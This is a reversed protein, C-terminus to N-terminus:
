LVAPLLKKIPQWKITSYARLLLSTRAWLLLCLLQCIHRESESNGFYVVVVQNDKIFSDFAPQDLILASVHQVRKTISGVIEKGMCRGDLDTAEKNMFLKITWFSEFNFCETFKTEVTADFKTNFVHKSSISLTEAVNVLKPTLKKCHNCWPVYM